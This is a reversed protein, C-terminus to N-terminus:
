AIANRFSRAAWWITLAALVAMIVFGRAVSPDTLNGSFLARAADVAHALPNASALARLWGPALSLPLMIGSLLMLPLLFFNLTSALADEDRVALALAYSCSSMVLGILIVLGMTIAVGAPSAQLGLIWAVLLLVTTQLLLMAVDRLGRGLLIAMRHVPTVRLREIIGARLDAILGFGVFASGFMGMMVVLGPAFVRLAGGTPFGPAAAVQKLLPTFLILYCAPQFMGVIIWIPNRGTATMNTVFMLWTERIFKM